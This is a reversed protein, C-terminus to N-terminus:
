WSTHFATQINAVCAAINQNPPPACTTILALANTILKMAMGWLGVGRAAARLTLRTLLMANDLM